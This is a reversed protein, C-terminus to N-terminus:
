IYLKRGEGALNTDSMKKEVGGYYPTQKVASTTTLLTM